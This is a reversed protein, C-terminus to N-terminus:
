ALLFSRAQNRIMTYQKMPLRRLAPVDIKETCARVAMRILFEGSFEFAISMKGLAQLESEIALSDAGTLKGWDFTLETYTKGEFTFPEPFVHVYINKDKPAGAVTLATKEDSM